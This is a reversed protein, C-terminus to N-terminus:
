QGHRVARGLLAWSERRLPRSVIAKTGYVAATRTHGSAYAWWGYKMLFAHKSTADAGPRWQHWAEYEGDVGRRQWAHRCAEYAGRRQREAKKESASKAHLRYRTLPSPLNELSGRESLRLWIDIDEAPEYLSRYGGVAQLDDRRIMASPHVIAGHGAAVKTQITADDCPPHLHTLERGRDDIMIVASGVCIAPSCELYAVQQEFRTPEAVDDSDLVAIYRGRSLSLGANRAQAIGQNDQRIVRVRSDHRALRRLIAPTRDSSGDDVILLELSSMSQDLVSRAAADIYRQANHAAVLVSVLPEAM